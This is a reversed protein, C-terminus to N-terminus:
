FFTVKVSRELAKGKFFGLSTEFFFEDDFRKRFGASISAAGRAQKFDAMGRQEAFYLRITDVKLPSKYCRIGSSPLRECSLADAKNDPM